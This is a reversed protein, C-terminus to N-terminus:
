RGGPRDPRRLRDYEAGDQNCGCGSVRVPRERKRVVAPGPAPSVRGCGTGSPEVRSTPEAATPTVASCLSTSCIRGARWHCPPRPMCVTRVPVVAPALSRRASSLLLSCTRETARWSPWAQGAIRELPKQKNGRRVHQVFKAGRRVLRCGPLDHVAQGSIEQFLRVVGQRPMQLARRSRRM